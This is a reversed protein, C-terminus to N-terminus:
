SIEKLNLSFRDKIFCNKGIIEDVMIERFNSPFFPPFFYNKITNKFIIM